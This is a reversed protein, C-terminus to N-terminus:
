EVVNDDATPETATRERKFIDSANFPEDSTGRAHQRRALEELRDAQELLRENGNELAQDRLKDITALRKALLRDNDRRPRNTENRGGIQLHTNEGAIRTDSAPQTDHPASKGDLRRRLHRTSAQELGQTANGDAV